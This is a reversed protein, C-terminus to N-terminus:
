TVNNIQFTIHNLYNHAIGGCKILSHMFESDKLSDELHLIKIKKNMSTPM